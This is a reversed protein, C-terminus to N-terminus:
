ISKSNFRLSNNNTGKNILNAQKFEVSELAKAHDKSLYATALLVKDVVRINEQKVGIELLKAVLNRGIFGVGGLILFTADKINTVEM